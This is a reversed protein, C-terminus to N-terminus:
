HLDNFRDLMISSNCRVNNIGYKAVWEEFTPHKKKKKLMINM